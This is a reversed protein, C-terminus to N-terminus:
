KTFPIYAYHEVSNSNIKTSRKVNRLVGSSNSKIIENIIRKTTSEINFPGKKVTKIKIFSLNYKIDDGHIFKILESKALEEAVRITGILGSQKNIKYYSVVYRKDLFDIIHIGNFLDINQIHSDFKSLSGLAKSYSIPLFFVICLILLSKRKLHLRNSSM